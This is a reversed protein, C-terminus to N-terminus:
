VVACTLGQLLVEVIAFAQQVGCLGQTLGVIGEAFFVGPQCAVRRFVGHEVALHFL